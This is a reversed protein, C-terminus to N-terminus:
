SANIMIGAEEGDRADDKEWPKKRRATNPQSAQGELVTDPVEKIGPIPQGETILAVIQSFSTPYPAQPQRDDTATRPEHGTRRPGTSMDEDSGFLSPQQSVSCTGNAVPFPSSTQQMRWTQYADFDILTNNKSSAGSLMLIHSKRSSPQPQGHVALLLLMASAPDLTRSSRTSPRLRPHSPSRKQLGRRFGLPLQHTAPLINRKPKSTTHSRLIATHGNPKQETTNSNSKRPPRTGLHWPALFISRSDPPHRKLM